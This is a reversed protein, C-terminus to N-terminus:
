EDDTIGKAIKIYELYHEANEFADLVCDDLINDTYSSMDFFQGDPSVVNAVLWNNNGFVLYQEATGSYLLYRLSDDDLYSGLQRFVGGANRKDTVDVEGYRAIQGNLCIEGQAEILIMWGDPFTITGIEGGYWTCDLHDKDRLDMFIKVGLEKEQAKIAKIRRKYERKKM